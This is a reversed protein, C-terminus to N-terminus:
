RMEDLPLRERTYKRACRKVSVMDLVLPVEAGDSVM